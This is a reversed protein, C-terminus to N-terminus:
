IAIGNRGAVTYRPCAKGGEGRRFVAGGHNAPFLYPLLCRRLGVKKENVACVVGYAGDDSLVAHIGQLEDTGLSCFAYVCGDCDRIVAHVVEDTKDVDPQWLRIRYGIGLYVITWPSRDADGVTGELTDYATHRADVCLGTNNDADGADDGKGGCVYGFVLHFRYVSLGWGELQIRMFIWAINVIRRVQQM